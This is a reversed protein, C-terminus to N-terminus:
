QSASINKNYKSRMFFILVIVLLIILIIFWLKNSEVHSERTRDKQKLILELMPSYVGTTKNYGVLVIQELEPYKSTNPTFYDIKESNFYFIGKTAKGKTLQTITKGDETWYVIADCKEAQFVDPVGGACGLSCTKGIGEPLTSSTTLCGGYYAGVSGPIKTNVGGFATQIMRHFDAFGDANLNGVMKTLIKHKNSMSVPLSAIKDEAHDKLEGLINEIERSEITGSGKYFIQRDETLSPVATMTMKRISM